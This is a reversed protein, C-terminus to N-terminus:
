PLEKGTSANYISYWQELNMKLTLSDVANRIREIRSTGVIPIIGSPHSLLWAYIVKDISEVELSTAVQTLATFLRQSKEDKPNLLKGGALPSWAMPKIREKLFFDVNGNEFHDLCYPSIEIQNTILKEDTFSNLMEFQLTSFNSVGFHLVKGQKRLHRFANAVEDPNFYPAPRHLLLLDIHDIGLNALSREV